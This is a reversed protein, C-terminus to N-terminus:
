LLIINQGSIESLEQSLIEKLEQSKSNVWRNNKLSFHGPGSVPSSLWIEKKPTQKNIVFIAGKIELTLVDNIYDIEISADEDCKDVSSTIDEMLKTAEILYERESIVESHDTSSYSLDQTSKDSSVDSINHDKTKSSIM